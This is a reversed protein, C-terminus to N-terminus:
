VTSGVGVKPEKGRFWTAALWSQFAVLVFSNFNNVVNPRSPVDKGRKWSLMEHFLPPTISCHDIGWVRSSIHGDLRTSVLATVFTATVGAALGISTITPHVVNSPTNAFYLHGILSNVKAKDTYGAAATKNPQTASGYFETLQDCNKYRSIFRTFLIAICRHM